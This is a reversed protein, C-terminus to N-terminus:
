AQNPDQQQSALRQQNAQANTIMMKEVEPTMPMFYRDANRVGGIALIDALTNRIQTLTM